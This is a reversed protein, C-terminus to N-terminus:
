VNIEELQITGYITNLNLNIIIKREENLTANYSNINLIGEINQIVKLINEKLYDDQNYSGLINYWDVGAELDFFCDGKWSKLSTIINQKLEEIETKYDLFSNGFKWNGNEDVARTTM